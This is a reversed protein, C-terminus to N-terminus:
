APWSKAALVWMMPCAPRVSAVTSAPASGYSSVSSSPVTPDQSKPPVRGPPNAAMGPEVPPGPFQM